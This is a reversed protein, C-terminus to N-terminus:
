AALAQLEADNVAGRPLIKLKKIHQNLFFGSGAQSGLYISTVASTFLTGFGGTTAVAGGNLCVKGTSSGFSGASNAAANASVGNGSIANNVSDSLIAVGGLSGGDALLAPSSNTGIVRATASLPTSFHQCAVLFTTSLWPFMSTALSIQDAARTVQSAVTPIYSTAFAGAELQAGWAYVTCPSQATAGNTSNIGAISAYLGTDAAATITFSFRQWATTVNVTTGVTNVANGLGNFILNVSCPAASRLWVSMTHQTSAGVSYAVGQYLGLGATLAVTDATLTGDPATVSNPTVAAGAKTWSANDFESSRLLLNTRQEEVLIGLPLLTSPDYDCRLTSGSVLLGASNYIWKPSPATYTLLSNPDGSFQSSGGRVLANPTAQDFVLSLGSPESSGLYAGAATSAGYALNTVPLGGSAVFTVPTGYGNAAEEVPAGFAGAETVPLGGSAVTVIPWAM